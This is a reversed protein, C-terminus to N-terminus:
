ICPPSSTHGCQTGPAHSGAPVRGCPAGLAVSQKVYRESCPCSKAAPAISFVPAMVYRSAASRMSSFSDDRAVRCRTACTTACSSECWTRCPHTHALPRGRSERSPGGAKCHNPLRTVIRQHSASHSLSPNAFCMSYTTVACQAYKHDVQHAPGAKASNM